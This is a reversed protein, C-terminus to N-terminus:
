RARELDQSWGAAPHAHHHLPHDASSRPTINVCDAWRDRRHSGRILAQQPLPSPTTLLCHLQSSDTPSGVPRSSEALTTSVRSASRGYAPHPPGPVSSTATGSACRCCRQTELRSCTRVAARLAAVQRAPGAARYRTSKECFIAQVKQLGPRDRGRSGDRLRAVRSRRLKGAAGEPISGIVTGPSGSPAGITQSLLLMLLAVSPTM